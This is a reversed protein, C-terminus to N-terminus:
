DTDDLSVGPHEDADHDAPGRDDQAPATAYATACTELGAYNTEVFERLLSGADPGPRLSLALTLCQKGAPTMRFKGSDEKRRIWGKKELVTLTRALTMRPNKARGTMLPLLDVRTLSRSLREELYWAYAAVAIASGPVPGQGAQYVKSADVVAVLHKGSEALRLFRDLGTGSCYSYLGQLSDEGLMKVISTVTPPYGVTTGVIVRRLAREYKPDAEAYDFLTLPSSSQRRESAAAGSAAVQFFAMVEGHKFDREQSASIVRSLFRPGLSQVGIPTPVYKYTGGELGTEEIWFLRELEDLARGVTRAASREASVFQEMITTRPVPLSNDQHWKLIFLFVALAANSVPSEKALLARSAIGLTIYRGDTLIRFCRGITSSEAYAFFGSLDDDGILRQVALKTLPNGTSTGCLIARIALDYRVNYLGNM